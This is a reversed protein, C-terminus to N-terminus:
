VSNLSSLAFFNYKKSFLRNNQLSIQRQLVNSLSKVKCAEPFGHNLLDSTQNNIQIM